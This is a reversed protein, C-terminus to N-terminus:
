VLDETEYMVSAVALGEDTAWDNLGSEGEMLGRARLGKSTMGDHCKILLQQGEPIEVKSGLAIQYSLALDRQMPKSLRYEKVLSKRLAAQAERVKVQHDGFVAAAQDMVDHIHVEDAEVEAEVQFEDERELEAQVMAYEAQVQALAERRLAEALSSDCRQCDWHAQEASADHLDGRIGCVAKGSGILHVVRGGGIRAIEFEHNSSM